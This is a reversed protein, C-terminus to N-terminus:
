GHQTSSVAAVMPSQETTVPPDTVLTGGHGDSTISFNGAVYQGLLTIDATHGGSTVTLTGSLNSAASVYSVSIVM